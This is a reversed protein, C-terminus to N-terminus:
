LNCYEYNKELLLLYTEKSEYKEYASVNHLEMM